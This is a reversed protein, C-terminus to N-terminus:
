SPVPTIRSIQPEGDILKVHIHKLWRETEAPYDDRYHAGRSETRELAALAMAKGILVAHRCELLTCLARPTDARQALLREHTKELTRLGKALGAQSRIIGLNEWFLKKIDKMQAAPSGQVGSAGVLQFRKEAKVGALAQFGPDYSCTEAYAAARTGAVEGFVLAESLANGGMRNAGHIGGVVEGAAFLGSLDTRCDKDVKLGGMTHHCAPTIKVAQSDFAMKKKYLNLTQPSIPLATCDAQRLDLHLAGEIGNGLAVEKFIAQSLRDRSVSAIPKAHLGYKEKIDEGLRNTIPGLDAFAPPIVLNAHGSGANVLPYFQVFEMDILELGAELGLAYGDGTSGPANDTQFYLAGAGGTVLIVSRSQVAYWEGSRKHFGLVGQCRGGEAVLDTVMVNELFGIGAERCARVLVSSLQPGGIMDTARCNFGSSHHHGKLGMDILQGVKSPARGVFLEVLGPDNLM